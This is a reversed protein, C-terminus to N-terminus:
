IPSLVFLRRPIFSRTAIGYIVDDEENTTARRTRTRGRSRPRPLRSSSHEHSPSPGRCPRAPQLCAPVVRAWAHPWALRHARALGHLHQRRVDTAPCGSRCLAPIPCLVRTFLAAAGPGLRPPSPWPRVHGSVSFLPSTMTFNTLSLFFILYPFSSVPM